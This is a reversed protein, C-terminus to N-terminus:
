SRPAPRLTQTWPPRPAGAPTAWSRPDGRIGFSIPTVGSASAPVVNSKSADTCTTCESSCVPLLLPDCPSRTGGSTSCLRHGCTLDEAHFQPGAVRGRVGDGIVCLYEVFSHLSQAYLLSGPVARAVIRIQHLNRQPHARVRRPARLEQPLAAFAVHTETHHCAAGRIDLGRHEFCRLHRFQPFQCQGGWFLLSLLPSPPLPSFPLRAASTASRVPRTPM